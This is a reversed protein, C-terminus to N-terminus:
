MESGCYNFQIDSSLLGILKTLSKKYISEKLGSVAKEAEEAYRKVGTLPNFGKFGVRGSKQDTIIRYLIGLNYGCKKLLETEDVSAKSIYAGMLAFTSTFEATENKLSNVYSENSDFFSNQIEGSIKTYCSKEILKTIHQLLSNPFVESAVLLALTQLTDGNLVAHSNDMGKKRNSKEGYVKDTDSIEDHLNMASYVIEAAACLRILEKNSSGEGVAKAPLLIMAQRILRDPNKHLQKIIDYDSIKSFEKVMDKIESNVKILELSLPSIIENMAAKSKIITDFM